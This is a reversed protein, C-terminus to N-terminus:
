SANKQLKILLDYTVPDLFIQRLFFRIKGPKDTAEKKASPDMKDVDLSKEMVTMQGEDFTAKAATYLTDVNENIAYQRVVGMANIVNAAHVEMAHPPYQGKEIANKVAADLDADLKALEVDEAEKIKKENARCKEIALLMPSYQDKKMGLPLLQNLMDIQRIKLITADSKAGNTTTVAQHAFSTAPILLCLGLLLFLNKM